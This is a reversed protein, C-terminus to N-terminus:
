NCRAPAVRWRPARAEWQRPREQQPACTGSACAWYNHSVPRTAWRRTPDEWVLARVQTGQMLLCVRLWQAVLSAGTHRKSSTDMLTKPGNKILNNIKKIKLLIKTYKPHYGRKLHTKQLIKEWDIAQRRNVKWSENWTGHLTKKLGLGQSFQNGHCMIGSRFGQNIQRHGGCVLQTSRADLSFIKRHRMQM